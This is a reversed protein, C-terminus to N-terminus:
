SCVIADSTFSRKSHIIRRRRRWLWISSRARCSGPSMKMSIWRRFIQRNHLEHRSARIRRLYLSTYMLLTPGSNDRSPIVFKSM